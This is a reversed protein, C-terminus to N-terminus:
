YIMVHLYLRKQSLTAFGQVIKPLYKAECIHLMFINLKMQFGFQGQDDQSSYGIWWDCTVMHFREGIM